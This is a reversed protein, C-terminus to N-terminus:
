ILGASHKILNLARVAPFMQLDPFYKYDTSKLLSDSGVFDALPHRIKNDFRLSTNGCAALTCKDTCILTDRAIVSKPPPPYTLDTNGSHWYGMINCKGTTSGEGFYSLEDSAVFQYSFTAELYVSLPFSGGTANLIYSRCGLLSLLYFLIKSRHM